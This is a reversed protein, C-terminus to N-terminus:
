VFTILNAYNEDKFIDNKFSAYETKLPSVAINETNKLIKIQGYQEEM